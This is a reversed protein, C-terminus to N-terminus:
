LDMLVCAPTEDRFVDPLPGVPQAVACRKM